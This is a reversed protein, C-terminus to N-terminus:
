IKDVFDIHFAIEFLKEDDIYTEYKSIEYNEFLLEIKNELQIDKKDTYLEIVINREIVMNKDDSGTLKESDTYYVIYPTSQAKGFSRYRYPINLTKLLNSIENLTM